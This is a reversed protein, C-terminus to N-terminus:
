RACLEQATQREGRGHGPGEYDSLLPGVCRRRDRRAARVQLGPAEDHRQVMALEKRTLEAFIDVSALMDLVPDAKAM